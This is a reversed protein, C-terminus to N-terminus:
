NKRSRKEEKYKKRPPLNDVLFFLNVRREHQDLERESSKKRDYKGFKSCRFGQSTERERETGREREREWLKEKECERPREINRDTEVREMAVRREGERENQLM